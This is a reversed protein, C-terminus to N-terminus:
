VGQQEPLGRLIALATLVGQTLARRYKIKPVQSSNLVEFRLLGPVIHVWEGGGRLLREADDRIDKTGM